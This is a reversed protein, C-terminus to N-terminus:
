LAAECHSSFVRKEQAEMVRERQTDSERQTHFICLASGQHQLSMAPVRVSYGISDDVVECKYQMSVYFYTNPFQSESLYKWWTEFALNASDAGQLGLM